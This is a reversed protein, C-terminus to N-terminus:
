PKAKFEITVPQGNADAFAVSKLAKIKLSFIGDSSTITAEAHWTRDAYATEVLPSAIGSATTGAKPRGVGVRSPIAPAARGAPLTRDQRTTQGAGESLDALAQTLDKAM